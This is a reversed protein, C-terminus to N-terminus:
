NTWIDMVGSADTSILDPIYVLNVLDAVAYLPM